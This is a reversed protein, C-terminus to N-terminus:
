RREFNVGIREFLVLWEDLVMKCNKYPKLLLSQSPSLIVGSRDLAETISM